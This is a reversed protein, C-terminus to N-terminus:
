RTIRTWAAVPCCRVTLPWALTSCRCASSPVRSFPASFDVSAVSAPSDGYSNTAIVTCTVATGNTLGTVLIPSSAGSNSKVGCTATYSTIASGGILAPATFAVSVQANGATANGITPAGPKGDPTGLVNVPVYSGNAIGNGLQGGAGWCKVGGYNMMACSHSSGADVAFVGATLSPVDFPALHSAGTPDGVQGLDNRGWCKVGGSTMLACTHSGGPSIAAVGAGLGVVDVPANIQNGQSGDGVGGNDNRGWCKAGGGTTVACTTNDGAGIAAVGTTLSSVDVPVFSAGMGAGNGLAGFSNLGWCKMGGGSTLACSHRGGVAIAVVGSTLGSVDTPAPMDVGSGDGLQGFNNRGWCKVGGVSTLACSHTEGTAIAAIGSSLGVPEIPAGGAVYVGNGVQGYSNDGWCRAAGGTTVACTHSGSASVGAVGSALGIVDLPVLSNAVPSGSGLQGFSNVGWCILGGNPKLACSHGSGASVPASTNPVNGSGSTSRPLAFLGSAFAFNASSLTAADIPQGVSARASFNASAMDGVGANVAFALSKFNASSQSIAITSVAALMAVLLLRFVAIVNM